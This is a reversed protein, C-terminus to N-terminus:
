SWVSAHEVFDESQVPVVCFVLGAPDALHVCGDSEGVRVAERGWLAHPLDLQDPCNETM